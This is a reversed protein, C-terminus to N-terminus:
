EMYSAHKGTTYQMFAIPAYVNLSFWFNTATQLGLVPEKELGQKEDICNGLISM